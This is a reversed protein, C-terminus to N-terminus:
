LKEKPALKPLPIRSWKTGDGINVGGDAGAAVICSGISFLANSGFASVKKLKDGMLHLIGELSPIFVDDGAQCLGVALDELPSKLQRWGKKETWIHVEDGVAVLDTESRVRVNLIEDDEPGEVSDFKKGNWLFLGADTCLYVEDSVLGHIGNIEGIDDPLSHEKWQGKRRVFMSTAGCVIVTDDVTRDGSFGTIAGFEEERNCIVETNWSANSYRLLEGGDTPCYATGNTSLWSDHIPRALVEVLEVSKTSPRLLITRHREQDSWEDPQVACLLATDLTSGFATLVVLEKRTPMNAGRETAADVIVTPM